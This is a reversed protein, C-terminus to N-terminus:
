FKHKLSAKVKNAKCYSLGFAKTYLAQLGTPPLANPLTAKHQNIDIVLRNKCLRNYVSQAWKHRRIIDDYEKNYQIKEASRIAMGEVGKEKLRKYVNFNGGIYHQQTQWYQLADRNYPLSFEACIKQLGQEPQNQFESLSLIHKRGTTKCNLLQEYSRAWFNLAKQPNQIKHSRGMWSHLFRWPDKFLILMDCTFDRDETECLHSLHDISKEASVLVDCGLQNSLRQYYENKDEQLVRRFDISWYQCADGCLQCHVFQDINKNTIYFKDTFTAGSKVHNSILWHSENVNGITPLSGLVLSMM